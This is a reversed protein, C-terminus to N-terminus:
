IYKVCVCHFIVVTYTYKRICRQSANIRQIQGSDLWYTSLLRITLSLIILSTIVYKKFYKPGLIALHTQLSQM